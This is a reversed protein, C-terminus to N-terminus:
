FPLEDLPETIENAANNGYASHPPYNNASAQPTSNQYQQSNSGGEQKGGLLQISQVRLSLEAGQQGTKTTYQRVEPSGEVFVLTGQKLYPAVAVRDSWYSCNAWITKEHAVGQADKFKETHAVSFNIVSKGNVNNVVCDKGLHGIVQLKIM